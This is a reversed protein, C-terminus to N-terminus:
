RDSITVTGGHNTTGVASITLGTTNSGLRDNALPNITNNATDETANFADNVANFTSGVEVSATGFHIGILWPATRILETAWYVLVDHATGLRGPRDRVHANRHGHGADACQVSGARIQGIPTLGAFAGAEDILGATTTTGTTVTPSLHSSYTIPGTM